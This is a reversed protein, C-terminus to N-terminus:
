VQFEGFCLLTKEQAEQSTVLWSPLIFKDITFVCSKTM